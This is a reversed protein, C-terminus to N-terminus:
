PGSKESTKKLKLELTASISRPAAEVPARLRLTGVRKRICDLEAEELQASSAYARTIVGAETVHAQLQVLIEPPVNPGSRPKFCASPMGVASLLEAPYDREQAKPKEAEASQQATKFISPRPEAEPQPLAPEVPKPEAAELETPGATRRPGRPM